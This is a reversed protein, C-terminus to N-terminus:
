TLTPVSNRNSASVTTASTIPEVLAGPHKDKYALLIQRVDLGDYNPPQVRKGTRSTYLNSLLRYTDDLAEDLENAKLSSRDPDNWVRKPDDISLGDIHSGAKNRIFTIKKATETLAAYDLGAQKVAQEFQDGLAERIYPLARARDTRDFVRAARALIDYFLAWFAFMFFGGYIEVKANDLEVIASRMQIANHLETLNRRIVEDINEPIDQEGMASEGKVAPPTKLQRALNDVKAKLRCEFISDLCRIFEVFVTCASHLILGNWVRPDELRFEVAGGGDNAGIHQMFDTGHAPRSGLRYCVTYLAAMGYKAFATQTNWGSVHWHKKAKSVADASGLEELALAEIRGSQGSDYKSHIWSLSPTDVVERFFRAKHLEAHHYFHNLGLDGEVAIMKEVGLVEVLSRLLVMADSSSNESCLQKISRMTKCARRFHRLCVVIHRHTLGPTLGAARRFVKKDFESALELCQDVREGLACTIATLDTMQKM